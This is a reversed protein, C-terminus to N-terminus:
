KGELSDAFERLFNAVNQRQVISFKNEYYSFNFKTPVQLFMLTSGAPYGNGIQHWLDIAQYETMKM